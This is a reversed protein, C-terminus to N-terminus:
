AALREREADPDYFYEKREQESPSEEVFMNQLSNNIKLKVSLLLNSATKHKKEAECAEILVQKLGDPNVFDLLDGGAATEEIFSKILFNMTLADIAWFSRHKMGEGKLYARTEKYNMAQEM